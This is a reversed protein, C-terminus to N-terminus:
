NRIALIYNAYCTLFVNRKQIYTSLFANRDSRLLERDNSIASYDIFADNLKDLVENSGFRGANIPIMQREWFKFETYTSRFHNNMDEVRRVSKNVSLIGRLFILAYWEPVSWIFGQPKTM